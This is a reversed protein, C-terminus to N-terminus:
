VTADEVVAEQKKMLAEEKNRKIIKAVWNPVVIAGVLLYVYYTL